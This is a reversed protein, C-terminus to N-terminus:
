RGASRPQVSVPGGSDRRRSARRDLAGESHVIVQAMGRTRRFVACFARRLVDATHVAAVAGYRRMPRAMVVASPHAV